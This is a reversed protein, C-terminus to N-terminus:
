PSDFGATMLNGRPVHGGFFELQGGRDGGLISIQTCRPLRGM